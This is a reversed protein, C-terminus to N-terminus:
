TEIGSLIGGDEPPRTEPCWGPETHASLAFLRSTDYYIRLQ